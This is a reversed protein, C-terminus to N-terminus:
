RTKRLHSHFITKSSENYQFQVLKTFTASVIEKEPFVKAASTISRFTSKECYRSYMIVDWYEM